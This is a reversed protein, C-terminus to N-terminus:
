STIVMDRIKEDNITVFDVNTEDYEDYYLYKILIQNGDKFESEKLNLCYNVWKCLCELRKSMDVDQKKDKVKFNDPNFRIFVCPTMGMNLAM